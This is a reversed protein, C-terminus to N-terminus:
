NRCLGQVKDPYKQSFAIIESYTMGNIKSGLSTPRADKNGTAAVQQEKDGVQIRVIATQLLCVDHRENEKYIQQLSATTSEESSGDVRTAPKVPNTACASLTVMFAAFIYVLKM